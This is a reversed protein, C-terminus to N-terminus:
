GCVDTNNKPTLPLTVVTPKDREAEIDYNGRPIPGKNKECQKSPNNKADGSGSYGEKLLTGDPRFMEGISQVYMWM